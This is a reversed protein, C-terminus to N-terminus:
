QRKRKSEIKKKGKRKIKRKRRTRGLHGTLVQCQCFAGAGDEVLDTLLSALFSSSWPVKCSLLLFRDVTSRRAVLVAVESALILLTLKASM